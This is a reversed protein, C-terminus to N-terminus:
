YVEDVNIKRACLILRVEFTLLAHLYNAICLIYNSCLISITGNINSNSFTCCLLSRVELILSSRFAVPLLHFRFFYVRCIVIRDLYIYISGFAFFFFLIFQYLFAEVSKEDGHQRSSSGSLKNAYKWYLIIAFSIRHTLMSTSHCIEAVCAVSASVPLCAAAAVVVSLFYVSVLFATMWARIALASVLAYESNREWERVRWM